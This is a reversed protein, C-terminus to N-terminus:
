IYPKIAISDTEIAIQKQRTQDSEDPIWLTLYKGHVTIDKCVLSENKMRDIM